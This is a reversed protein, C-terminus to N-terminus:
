EHLGAGPARRTSVYCIYKAGAMAVGECNGSLTTMFNSDRYIIPGTEVNFEDGQNLTIQNNFEVKKNNVLVYVETPTITDALSINVELVAKLSEVVPM